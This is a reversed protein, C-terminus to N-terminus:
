QEKNEKNYGEMIYRLLLDNLSIGKRLALIKLETRTRNDIRVPMQVIKNPDEVMTIEETINNLVKM